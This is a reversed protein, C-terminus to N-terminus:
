QIVPTHILHELRVAGQSPIWQINVYHYLIIESVLKAPNSPRFPKPKDKNSDFAENYLSQAICICM